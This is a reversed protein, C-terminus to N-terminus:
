SSKSIRIFRIVYITLVLFSFIIILSFIIGKRTIIFGNGFSTIFMILTFVALFLTLLVAVHSISKSQRSIGRTLLLLVIGFLFPILATFQLDGTEMYSLIFGTLGIAVLFLSYIFNVTGPKEAIM